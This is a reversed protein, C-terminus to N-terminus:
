SGPRAPLPQAGNLIAAAFCYDSSRNSWAHNTGRQILVDGAKLLTEGEDMVAYIEGSLIIIFDITNTRHMLPHPKKEESSMASLGSSGLPNFVDKPDVKDIFVSDPPFQVIRLLSGTPRPELEIPGACPESCDVNDAPFAACKWMETIGFQPHGATAVFPAIRDELIVSRGAKDHGTVVRRVPKIMAADNPRSHSKSSQLM